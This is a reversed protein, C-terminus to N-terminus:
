SLCPPYGIDYDGSVFMSVSYLNQIFKEIRLPLNFDEIGKILFVRANLSALKLNDMLAFPIQQCLTTKPFM